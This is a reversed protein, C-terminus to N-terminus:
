DRDTEQGNSSKPLNQFNQQLVTLQQEMKYIDCNPTHWIPLEGDCVKCCGFKDIWKGDRNTIPEATGPRTDGNQKLFERVRAAQPSTRDLSELLEVTALLMERTHHLERELQMALDIPVLSSKPLGIPNHEALLADSRPTPITSM